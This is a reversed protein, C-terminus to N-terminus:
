NQYGIYTRRGIVPTISRTMSMDGSKAVINVVKEGDPLAMRISFTGDPRLEVPNGRVTLHAGPETAGYIIVEVDATLWFDKGAEKGFAMQPSSISSIVASGMEMERMLRMSVYPKVFEPSSPAFGASLWYLKDMGEIIMWEEDIVDSVRDRPTTVSNSRCLSIFRGEPDKIGLEACYTRDPKAVNIYWNDASDGIGIDFFSESIGAEPSVDTIDYIRLIKHSRNWGEESLRQRIEHITDEAIEWYAHIWYPDRVMLRIVTENYRYPIDCEDGPGTTYTSETSESNQSLDIEPPDIIEMEPLDDPITIEGPKYSADICRRPDDHISSEPVITDKAENTSNM